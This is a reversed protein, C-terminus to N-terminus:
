QEINGPILVPQEDGDEEDNKGYILASVKSGVKMVSNLPDKVGDSVKKVQNSWSDSVRAMQFQDQCLTNALLTNLNYQM